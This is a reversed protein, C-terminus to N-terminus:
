SVFEGFEMMKLSLMFMRLSVFDYSKLYMTVDIGTTTTYNKVPRLTEDYGNCFLKRKLVAEESSDSSGCNVSAESFQFFYGYYISLIVFAATLKMETPKIRKSASPLSFISNQFFDMMYNRYYRILRHLEIM